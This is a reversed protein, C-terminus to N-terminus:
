RLSPQVLTHFILGGLEGIGVTCIPSTNIKVGRKGEGGVETFPSTYPNGTSFFDLDIDLLWASAKGIIDALLEAIAELSLVGSCQMHTMYNFLRFDFVVICMSSLLVLLTNLKRLLRLTM